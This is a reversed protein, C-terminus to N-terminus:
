SCCCGDPLGLGAYVAVGIAWGTLMGSLRVTRLLWGGTAAVANVVLAAPLNAAVASV